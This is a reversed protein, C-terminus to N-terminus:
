VLKIGGRRKGMMERKRINEGAKSICWEVERSYNKCEM